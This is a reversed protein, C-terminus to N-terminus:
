MYYNNALKSYKLLLNYFYINKDQLLLCSVSFGAFRLTFHLQIHMGDQLFHIHLRADWAKGQHKGERSAKWGLVFRKKYNKSNDM